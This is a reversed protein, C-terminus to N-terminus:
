PWSNSCSLRETQPKKTFLTRFLNLKHQPFPKLWSIWHHLLLWSSSTWKLHVKTQQTYRNNKTENVYWTIKANVELSQASRLLLIIQKEAIMKQLAFDGGRQNKHLSPHQQLLSTNALCHKQCPENGSWVWLLVSMTTLLASALNVESSGSRETAILLSQCM